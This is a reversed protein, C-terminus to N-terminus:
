EAQETEETGEPATKATKDAIAGFVYGLFGAAIPSWFVGTLDIDFLGALAWDLFAFIYCLYSLTRM